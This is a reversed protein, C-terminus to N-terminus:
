FDILEAKLGRTRVQRLLEEAAARQPLPWWVVRWQRGSPM